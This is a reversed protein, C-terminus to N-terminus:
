SLNQLLASSGARGASARLTRSVRVKFPGAGALNRRPIKSSLVFCAALLNGATNAAIATSWLRLGSAGRWAPALDLEPVAVLADGARVAWAPLNTFGVKNAGLQNGNLFFFVESFIPSVETGSWYINDQINTFM